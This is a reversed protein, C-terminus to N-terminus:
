WSLQSSSCPSMMGSLAFVILAYYESIGALIRDSFEISILLVIIAAVLFFRKFFLAMGDMVYTGGFAYQPEGGGFRAFSYALVLGLAAAAGYGLHRKREPATWLDVLLLALGLALVALELITLSPNM